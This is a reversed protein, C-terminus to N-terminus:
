VGVPQTYGSLLQVIEQRQEEPALQSPTNGLVDRADADAGYELLLRMVGLNGHKAATHLPADGSITRADVEAKNKLLMQVFRVNGVLAAKHLATQDVDNQANVEAGHDVLWRGIGLYGHVSALHLPTQGRKSQGNKELVRGLLLSAVDVHGNSTAAHFPTGYGGDPNLDEPHRELLHEALDRLGLGAAYYLPAASPQEPRLNSMFPRWSYREKYIWLWAAFHPKGPDFLCEMGDKINISSSVNGFKAHKAWHQAAYHALRHTQITDCDIGDDLGLLVGLCAGVLVSHAPELIIYCRSVDGSSEKLRKSTLFEKVSFHSFQVIQSDGNNVLAILSSCTTLVAEEQDAWRWDPNLKPIGEAGFDFALLEALEEVRLPRVAVV